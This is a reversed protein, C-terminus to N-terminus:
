PGVLELLITGSEEYLAEFSVVTDRPLLRIRPTPNTTPELDEVINSVHEISDFPVHLLAIHEFALTSEIRVEWTWARRDGCEGAGYQERGCTGNHELLYAPNTRDPQGAAHRDAISELYRNPDDYCHALWAAFPERWDELPVQHQEFFQWRIDESANDNRFPQLAPPSDELSGSDFPTASGVRGSEAGSAFYIV